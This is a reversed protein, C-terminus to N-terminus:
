FDNPLPAGSQGASGSNESASISSTSPNLLLAEQEMGANHEDIFKLVARIAPDPSQRLNRLVSQNHPDGVLSRKSFEAFRSGLDYPLHLVVRSGLRARLRAFENLGTPDYDPLHILSCDRPDMQALWDLLRGSIRGRGYLVLDLPLNLREILTFVVPSEVLACVGRLTYASPHDTLTFAFVGHEETAAVADVPAGDRLLSGDKWARVCVIESANNTLAKSDRFRAVGAIRSPADNFIEANPYRGAYFLRLAADDRVVLCRGAGSKEEVVVGSDLAPRLVKLFAEGCVSRSLSGGEILQSLRARIHEEANM